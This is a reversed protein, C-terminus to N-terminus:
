DDYRQGRIIATVVIAALAGVGLSAGIIFANRNGHSTFFCVVESDTCTGVTSNVRAWSLLAPAAVTGNGARFVYYDTSNRACTSNFPGCYPSLCQL